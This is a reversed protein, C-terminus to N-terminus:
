QGVGVVIFLSSCNMDCLFTYKIHKLVFHLLYSISRLQIKGIPENSTIFQSQVNQELWCTTKAAFLKRLLFFPPLQTYLLQEWNFSRIKFDHLLHSHSQHFRNSCHIVVTIINYTKHTQNKKEHIDLKEMFIISKIM